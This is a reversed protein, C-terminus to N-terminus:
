TRNLRDPMGRPPTAAYTIFIGLALSIAAFLRVLLPGGHSWWDFIANGIRVGFFPTLLGGVLILLGLVHLFRPLRSSSAARFLVFGIATRIVAAAYIVPPTQITRLVRVFADPAAIGFIGQAVLALGIFLAALIV